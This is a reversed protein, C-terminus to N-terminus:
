LATLWSARVNENEIAIRFEGFDGSPLFQGKDRMKAIAMDAQEATLVGTMVAKYLLGITGTVPVGMERSVQRGRTENCLLVFGRIRAIALAESEGSDLGTLGLYAAELLEAPTAYTERLWGKALAEEVEVRVRQSRRAECLASESVYIRGSFMVRLSDFVGGTVHYCLPGTDTMLISSSM